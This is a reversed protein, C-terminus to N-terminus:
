ADRWAARRNGRVLDRVDVRVPAASRYTFSVGDFRIAPAESQRAEALPVTRGLPSLQADRETETPISAIEQIRGLAGLAQGVAAIAGFAQGLPAVMLFLFVIFMVLQ